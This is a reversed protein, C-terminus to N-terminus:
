LSGIGPRWIRRSLSDWYIGIPLGEEMNIRSINWKQDLELAVDPDFEGQAFERAARQVDKQEDSLEFNM